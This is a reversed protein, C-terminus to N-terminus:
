KKKDKLIKKEANYVLERTKEIIDPSLSVSTAGWSVLMEVLEPYVSPAQGCISCTIKRKKCTTVIKELSALVAPDMESYNGSIKENDRDVGLTLMTLDNSGISVGDIGEDIFEDLLIVNSPVEVMMWLKFLGGRRLGNASLINKVKRFEDVTRVFPMMVWLNKFGKKNRVIKIAEIEMKFVAPDSVYRCVGRFGIMPNREVGEFEAGGKLTAYENTKFDNFRYVVPRPDFAEAFKEIGEALKDIFEQERNEKIYVRPHTGIGAMMFEARLLGVGDVNRQAMDVALEPEALNMYIKTATKIKSTDVNSKVEGQKTIDGEYVFGSSGDVTIIEGDKLIKTAHMTGVVAPVGLERSVIAAHSTKGGEDTVIACAKKMGPVYDPDTMIAVLVDKDKIKSLEKPSKVIKVPGSVVGPSAALGQLIKSQKISSDIEFNTKSHMKLTTVPRSQVIYLKGGEMGWEIDQPHGYHDEIKMGIKALEVIHRNSLKQSEQYRKSVPVKGSLTFQWTQKVVIRQKIKKTNKSVLYQDPTLEGSVVPQGLGFAAEISVVETNNTLPNLTFMIGSVVSQVMLQIPVAIGVKLHSYKNQTRYYIARAEFLSAWCMQVHKAVSKWGKINLYTEQQGAFSADPLDEATASSRVAVLRDFEGCLEHYYDRIQSILDPPMEAALIATKINESARQLKETHEVDLNSLETMIKEKISTNKLFDYYAKSTIVFGNPVPIQAHYMEGLNAGKGGALAVDTKRVDKFWLIHATNKMM